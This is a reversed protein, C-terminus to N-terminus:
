RVFRRRHTYLWNKKMDKMIGDENRTVYDAYHDFTQFHDLEPQAFKGGRAWEYYLLIGYKAALRHTIHMLLFDEWSTADSERWFCWENSAKACGIGHIGLFYEPTLRYGDEERSLTLKWEDALMQLDEEFAADKISLKITTLDIV